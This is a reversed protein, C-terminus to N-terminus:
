EKLIFFFTFYFFSRWNYVLLELQMPLSLKPIEANVLKTLPTNKIGVLWLWLALWFVGQRTFLMCSM